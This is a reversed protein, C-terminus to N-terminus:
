GVQVTGHMFPHILCSYDYTGPRAFKQSFSEGTSLLFASFAPDVFKVRHTAEDMNVWRVTAGTKVTIVQPDFSLDHITVTNDSVSPGTTPTGVQFLTPRTTAATHTSPTTHGAGITATPSALPQPSPQTCGAAGLLLVIFLFLVLANKM